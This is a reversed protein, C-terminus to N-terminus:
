VLVVNICVSLVNVENVIVSSNVSVCGCQCEYRYECEFKVQILM